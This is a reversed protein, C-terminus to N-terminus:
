VPEPADFGEMNQPNADTPFRSSPSFSVFFFLQLLLLLPFAKDGFGVLDCNAWHRRFRISAFREALVSGAYFFFLGRRCGAKSWFSWPWPRPTLFPCPVRMPPPYCLSLPPFCPIFCLCLFRPDLFFSTMQRRPRFLQPGSLPFSISRLFLRRNVRYPSTRDTPWFCWPSFVRPPPLSFPVGQVPPPPVLPCPDPQPLNTVQNM